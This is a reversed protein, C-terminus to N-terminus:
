KTAGRLADVMDSLVESIVKLASNVAEHVKQNNQLVEKILANTKELNTIRSEHDRSNRYLEDIEIPLM